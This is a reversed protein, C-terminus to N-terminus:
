VLWQMAIHHAQVALLHVTVLGALAPEEGVLFPEKKLVALVVVQGAYEQALAVQLHSTEAHLHSPEAWRLVQLHSPESWRLFLEVQVEVAVLATAQLLYLWDATWRFRIAASEGRRSFALAARCFLRRWLGCPWTRWCFASEACSVKLRCYIVSNKAQWTWM